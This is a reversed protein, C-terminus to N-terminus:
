SAKAHDENAEGIPLHVTFTSGRGPQSQVEIRGGMAELVRRSLWLGLGFGGYHPTAVAREFRDFIRLQREHPIGVGRDRVILRADHGIKEIVVDIPKGCGFKIANSVLSGTVQEIRKRDWRGVLSPPAEFTLVCQSRQISVAYRDLAARVAEVIDIDALELSVSGSTLLSVDLLDAVLSGLRDAQREVVGLLRALVAPDHAIDRRLHGLALKLSTLPTNLEHSAVALFDDRVRIAEESESYLRARDLAQGCQLAVAEIFSRETADFSADREFGLALIGIPHRDLVLPLCVFGGEFHLRSVDPYRESLEEPSAIWVPHGTRAADRFPHPDESRLALWTPAEIGPSRALLDLLEGRAKVLYVLVDSTGLTRQAEEVIVSGVQAVTIARSLKSTLNQLTALHEAARREAAFLLAREMALAARSALKEVLKIDEADYVHDPRCSFLTIAGLVHSGHKLPCFIASNAHGIWPELANLEPAQLITSTGTEFTRVLEDPMPAATSGGEEVHPCPHATEVRRLRGEADALAVICGDALRPVLLEVLTQLIADASGTLSLRDSAEFLLDLRAEADLTRKRSARSLARPRATTPM